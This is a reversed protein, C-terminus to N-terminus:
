KQNLIRYGIIALCFTSFVGVAVIDWRVAVYESTFLPVFGGLVIATFVLKSLDLFYKGIIERMARHKERAEKREEQQRSFNSM